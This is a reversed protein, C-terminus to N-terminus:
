VELLRIMAVMERFKIMEMEETSKTTEVLFLLVAKSKMEGKPAIIMVEMGGMAEMAETLMVEMAAMAETLMVEMAAMVEMAEMVVMAETLMVEMAVGNGGNANGGNM